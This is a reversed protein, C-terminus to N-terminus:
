PLPFDRLHRSQGVLAHTCSSLYYMVGARLLYECIEGGQEHRVPEGISPKEFDGDWGVVHGDHNTAHIDITHGKGCAECWHLLVGPQVLRLVGFGFRGLGITM